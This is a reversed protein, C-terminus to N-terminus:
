RAGQGESGPSEEAEFRFPSQGTSERVTCHSMFVGHKLMLVVAVGPLFLGGIGFADVFSGRSSARVSSGGSFRM